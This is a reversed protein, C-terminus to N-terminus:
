HGQYFQFESVMDFKQKLVVPNGFDGCELDAAISDTLSDTLYQQLDEPHIHKAFKLLKKPVFAGVQEREILVNSIFQELTHDVLEQVDKFGHNKALNELERYEKEEFHIVNKEIMENKNM